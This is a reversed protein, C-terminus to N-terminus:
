PGYINGAQCANSGVSGELITYLTANTYFYPTNTVVSNTGTYIYTGVLLANTVSTPSTSLYVAGTFSYAQNTLGSLSIQDKRILVTYTNQDLSPTIMTNTLTQLAGFGTVQGSVSFISISFISILLFLALTKGLHGKLAHTAGRLNSVVVGLLPPLHEAALLAAIHKEVDALIPKADLTCVPPSLVSSPPRVAAAPLGAAADAILLIKKM